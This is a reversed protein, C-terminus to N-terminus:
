HSPKFMGKPVKNTRSATETAYEFHDNIPAIVQNQAQQLANNSCILVM